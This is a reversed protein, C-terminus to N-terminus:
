LKGVYTDFDFYQKAAKEAMKDSEYIGYVASGSGSLSTYVAGSKKLGSKLEQIQPFKDELSKEFDNIIIGDWDNVPRTITETLGTCPIRPTVGSYAEATSISIDPKVILLTLNQLTQVPIPTLQTGIGTAIMPRNYIFFPCDAGIKAAIEALKSTTLDLSFMENLAILTFAADSSGGGLGAGDPIIKRLYIDVPPLPIYQNLINYAKVVLNKEPPCEVSRGSVTLTTQNSKAPVIELIDKWGVPIMVSEIDHYGDSHRALINLGINIKANPFVVM